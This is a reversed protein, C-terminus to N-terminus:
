FVQMVLVFLWFRGKHVHYENFIMDESYSLAFKLFGFQFIVSLIVWYIGVLLYYSMPMKINSDANDEEMNATFVGTFMKMYAFLAILNFFIMISMNVHHAVREHLYDRATLHTIAYAALKIAVFGLWMFTLSVLVEILKKLSRKM